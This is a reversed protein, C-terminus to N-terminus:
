AARRQAWDHLAGDVRNCAAIREREEASVSAMREASNMREAAEFDAVGSLAGIDAAAKRFAEFIGVYRLRELTNLARRFLDEERLEGEEFVAGSLYRAQGNSAQSFGSACFEGPGLARAAAHAPNAPEHYCYWYDSLARDVPSRLITFASPAPLLDLVRPPLHGAVFRLRKRWKWPMAELAAFSGAPCEFESPMDVLFARDPPIQELLRPLLLKRLTTGGTRPLHLYVLCADAPVARIRSAVGPQHPRIAPHESAQTSTAPKRVRPSWHIPLRLGERM